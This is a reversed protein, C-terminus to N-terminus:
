SKPTVDFETGETTESFAYLPMLFLCSLLLLYIRKM